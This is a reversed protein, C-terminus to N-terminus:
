RTYRMLKRRFRRKKTKRQRRGGNLPGFAGEDENTENNMAQSIVSNTGSVQSSANVVSGLSLTRQSSSNNNNDNRLNRVYTLIDSFYGKLYMTYVVDETRDDLKLADYLGNLAVIAPFVRKDEPLKRFYSAHKHRLDSIEVFEQLAKNLPSDSTYIQLILFEKLDQKKMYEPNKLSKYFVSVIDQIKQLSPALIEADDVSYQNLISYYSHTTNMGIM